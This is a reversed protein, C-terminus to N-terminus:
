QRRRLRIVNPDRPDTDDPRERIVRRVMARYRESRELVRGIHYWGYGWFAFALGIVACALLIGSTTM